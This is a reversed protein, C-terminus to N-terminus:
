GILELKELNIDVRIEHEQRNRRAIEMMLKDRLVNINDLLSLRHLVEPKQPDPRAPVTVSTARKNRRGRRLRDLRIRKLLAPEDHNSSRHIWPNWDKILKVREALKFAGETLQLPSSLAAPPSIRKNSGTQGTSGIVPHAPLLHDISGDGVDDASSSVTSVGTSASKSLPFGHVDEVGINILSLLFIGKILATSASATNNSSSTPLYGCHHGGGEGKQCSRGTALSCLKTKNRGNWRRRNCYSLLHLHLHNGLSSLGPELTWM